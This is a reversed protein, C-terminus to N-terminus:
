RRMKSRSSTSIWRKGGTTKKCGCQKKQSIKLEKINLKRHQGSTKKDLKKRLNM